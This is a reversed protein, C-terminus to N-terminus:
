TAPAVGAGHEWTLSRNQLQRGASDPASAALTHRHWGDTHQAPSGRSGCVRRAAEAPSHSRSMCWAERGRHGRSHGCVLRPLPGDACRGMLPVAPTRHRYHAAAERACKVRWRPQLQAHMSFGWEKSPVRAALALVDPGVHRGQRCHRRHLATGSRAGCNALLVASSVEESVM